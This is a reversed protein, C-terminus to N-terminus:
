HVRTGKRENQCCADEEERARFWSELDKPPLPRALYYGQALDCHLAVLLDWAAQDEVGEAVVRIGMSHAMNVTSRVIAQDSLDNTLHQVFTRDIKLEETPLNKLYSLSAYGTGYDDVSIRVGLAFLQHLVQLTHETDAMIASETIEVCLLQPAVQYRALLRAVIGPLSADRLNWTSLNVAVALEIGSELWRKCQRVATELVWQTLPDILGTQEALPIFQDPPIFGHTPHQWRVLAEVSRIQGTTLEAKPQYYLRLEQTAIAKRLDGLLALRHPSYHDLREDYLAYGTHRQKALYMAVDAHRFLTLSESGHLPYLAIGISAEVQVPYDDVLFSGELATGISSAVRQATTEDADPLFVAFEDGGLRAVTADAEVVERLRMGVRALLMDGCRHGFTDNVEKFRDLDLMFLAMSRRAQDAQPLEATIRELLWGRNPLDTLQDTTALQALRANAENLAGHVLGISALQAFQKLLAIEGETPCREKDTYAVGILGIIDSGKLLPVAVWSHLPDLGLRALGQYDERIVPARTQWVEGAIGEQIGICYGIIRNFTGSAFQTVLMDSDSDLLALFAHPTDMLLCTRDLLDNLLDQLELRSTLRVAMDQLATLHDQQRRLANEALRRKTIDRLIGLGGIIDRSESLLPALRCELFRQEGQERITYSQEEIHVTEGALVRPFSRVYEAEELNPFVQFASKGIARLDTIGTFSEMTPNWLTYCYEQDFAFIGDASSHVLREYVARIGFAVDRMEQSRLELSRELMAHDSEFQKYAENVAALLAQWHPPLADPNGLYRKVQRKLLRHTQGTLRADTLEM